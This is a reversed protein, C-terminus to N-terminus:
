SKSKALFQRYKKNYLNEEQMDGLKNSLRAARKYLQAAALYRGESAHVRAEKLIMSREESLSQKQIEHSSIKPPVLYSHYLYLGVGIALIISVIIIFITVLNPTERILTWQILNAWLLLNDVADVWVVGSYKKGDLNTVNLDSFMVTSGCLIFKSSGKQTAYLWSTQFFRDEDLNELYSNSPGTALIDDQQTVNLGSTFTLLNKLKWTVPHNSQFTEDGMEVVWRPMGSVTVINNLKSFSGTINGDPFPNGIDNYNSLLFLNGGFLTYNKLIETENLTINKDPGPNGIIILDYSTLVSLNEFEVTNLYVQFDSTQNLYDLATKFRGNTYTYYQDHAEDFLIRYPGSDSQAQTDIVLFPTCILITLIVGV